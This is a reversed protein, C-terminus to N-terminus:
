TAASGALENLLAWAIDGGMGDTIGTDGYWAIAARAKARFGELTTPAAEVIAEGVEGHRACAANFEVAAAAQGPRDELDDTASCLRAQTDELDCFEAALRILEADPNTAPTGATAAAPVFGAIALLAASGGYLRRRTTTTSTAKPM